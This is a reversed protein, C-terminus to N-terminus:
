LCNLFGFYHCGIYPLCMPLQSGVHAPQRTSSCLIISSEQFDPYSPSPVSNSEVGLVAYFWTHHRMGTIGDGLVYLPYFSLM